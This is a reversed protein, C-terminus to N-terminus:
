RLFNAATQPAREKELALTIPGESTTMVISVTAAPVTAAPVATAPLATPPAVPPATQASVSAACILALSAAFTRLIM